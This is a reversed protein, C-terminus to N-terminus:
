DDRLCLSPNPVNSNWVDTDVTDTGPIIKSVQRDDPLSSVGVDLCNSDDFPPLPPITNNSSSEQTSLQTNGRPEFTDPPTPIITTPEAENTSATEVQAAPSSETKVPDGQPNPPPEGCAILSFSLAVPTILRGVWSQKAGFHQHASQSAPTYAPNSNLRM